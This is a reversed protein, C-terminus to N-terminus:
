AKQIFDNVSQALAEPYQYIMAHGGEKWRLLTAHPLTHALITSNVPPIVTDASGNLLLVPLRLHAMKKATVEDALWDKILQRQAAMVPVPDAESYTGPLFRDKILSVRMRWSWSSPFFENVALFYRGLQSKPMNLMKEETAPLPHVAQKGAIATNILILSGLQKSHLAALQQAIMGGMSIGVVAPKKLHLKQILQYSDEALARSDYRESHILSQGLNRNNFVIVQHERALVELFSRNWSSLDMAYGTILVVPSGKGQGLQAYEIQGQKVSVLQTTSCSTLLLLLALLTSKKIFALYRWSM